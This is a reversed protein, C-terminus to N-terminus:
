QNAELPMSQPLAENHAEEDTVEPMSQTQEKSMQSADDGYSTYMYESSSMEEEEYPMTVEEDDPRVIPEYGGEKVAAGEEYMSLTSIDAPEDDGRGPVDDQMQENPNLPKTNTFAYQPQEKRCGGLGLLVLFAISFFMTRM